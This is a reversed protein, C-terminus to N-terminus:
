VVQKVTRVVSQVKFAKTPALFNPAAPASGPSKEAAVQGAGNINVTDIDANGDVSVRRSKM